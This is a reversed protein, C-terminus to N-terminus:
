QRCYGEGDKVTLCDTKGALYKLGTEDGSSARLVQAGDPRTFAIGEPTGVGEYTGAMDADTGYQMELQYHGAEALKTVTLNLGEVGIWRGVWEDRSVAQTAPAPELSEATAVASPTAAPVAEEQAGGSCAGAGLALLLSAHFWKM